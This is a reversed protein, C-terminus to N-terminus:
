PVEITDFIKAIIADATINEAEAEYSPVIRHRLVDYGVVRVDEPTVFGRGRVFAHAKALKTLAISARPSAGYSIHASDLGYKSPTRTAFVIDMIYDIIKEEIYIREVTERARVMDKISVATKCSPQESKSMREVILKEEDKSPYTVFIKMIFRDVQAEPLQYTGEQEIPNETALVMFPEPLKYTSEGITVQHEQMAELLASQVKAPSRNIEDALVINAFVPGKKTTFDGSKQNYIETGVIDAPLLDPTFQIRKFSADIADAFSKITLTKALGPVGELLIHGDCLMGMIMKMLMDQQGVIVKGVEATLRKVFQSEEKVEATIAKIDVNAQM